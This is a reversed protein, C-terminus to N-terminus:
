SLSQAKAIAPRFNHFLQGTDKLIIKDCGSNLDLNLVEKQDPKYSFRTGLVKTLKTKLQKSHTINAKWKQLTTGLHDKKKKRKKKKFIIERIRVQNYLM